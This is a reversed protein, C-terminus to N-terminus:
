PLTITVIRPDPTPLLEGSALLETFFGLLVGVSLKYGPCAHLTKLPSQKDRSGGFMLMPDGGDALASGFGVVVKAGAEFPVGGLEGAKAATRWTMFPVTSRRMAALLPDHLLAIVQASAWPMALEKYLRAQWDWLERTEANFKLLTLLNGLVTAPFGLMIGALLDAQEQVPAPGHADLIRKTLPAVQLQGQRLLRLIAANFSAGQPAATDAVTKSPDPAFVYRSMALLHGPCLAAARPDDSRPGFKVLSAATEPLEPAGFWRSCLGALLRNALDELDVQAQRQGRMLRPLLAHIVSRTDDFAQGQPFGEIAVNVREVSALEHGANPGVDDQGLYGLGITGSMRRDYGSTSFRYGPEQLVELVAAQSGVLLGYPTAQVGSPRAVPCQRVQAWAAPRSGADELVAKWGDKSQPLPLRQAPQVPDPVCLRPLAALAALSPVFAYLGWQLSVLPEAGLELRRVTGGHEFRFVRAVGAEPVGMLPDDQGASVGSSNGGAIWRQVVEFQEAISANYAMFLLGVEDGEQVAHGYSLGRRMLRPAFQGDARRERPNCRRAHAAFPCVSGAADQRYDFDNGGKSASAILADGNPYRGMLKARLTDAPLDSQQGAGVIKDLREPYLRLKRVVLFSGDDLLADPAPTQGVDPGDGRDNGYGLFLEGRRVEDSWRSAPIPGSGIVPQSVGDVFGFKNRPQPEGNVPPMSHAAQVAMVALGTNAELAKITLQLRPLVLQAEGQEGPQQPTRLQVLLHVSSLAVPPGVPVDQQGNIWNRPPRVWAQPHNGRLDGLIGARAEMGDIFERPLRARQSPPLGLAVLGPYTLALTMLPDSAGGGAETSVPANALWALAQPVDVVRLLVLAGHVPRDAPRPFARGIGAQVRAPKFDLWETKAARTEPRQMLWSIQPEMRLTGFRGGPDFEGESVWRRLDALLERAFRLLIGGDGSGVGAPGPPFLRGLGHVTKLLRLASRVSDPTAGATGGPPPLALGTAAADAAPTGGLRRQQAELQKLYAADAVSAGSDAYFFRGRVENARVWRIYEDFSCRWAQPYSANHCFILDLLTGLPKWILRMYPEWGGDFTVNLLLQHGGTLAEAPAPDVVAFRFFHISQFRGVPDAFPSPMPSDERSFIRIGNLTSLVRRLREVQTETDFAAEIFGPKIPCLVTLDTIGQLQTSKYDTPLM